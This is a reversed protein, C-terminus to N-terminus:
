LACPLCSIWGIFVHPFLFVFSVGWCAQGKHLDSFSTGRFYGMSFGFLHMSPCDLGLYALLLQGGVFTIANRKMWVGLFLRFLCM